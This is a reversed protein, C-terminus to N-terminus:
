GQKHETFKNQLFGGVARYKKKSPRVKL